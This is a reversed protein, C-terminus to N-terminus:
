KANLLLIEDSGSTNCPERLLGESKKTRKQLLATPPVANHLACYFSPYLTTLHLKSIVLKFCLLLSAVSQM